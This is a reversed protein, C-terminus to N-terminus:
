SAGYSQFVEDRVLRGYENLTRGDDETMSNEDVWDWVFAIFGNLGAPIAVDAAYETFDANWQEQPQFEPGTWRGYETGVIPYDGLYQGVEEEWQEREDGCFCTQHNAYRHNAFLVAPEGDRLGADLEMMRDAVEPDFSWSWDITDLLLVGDYSLDERWFHVVDSMVDEWQEWTVGHPENFPEYVVSPWPELAERVDRMMPFVDRYDEVWEAGGSHSDWWGVVVRIDREAAADVLDRLRDLYAERGGLGYVDEDYGSLAVPIRLTNVGSDRMHSLMQERRQYGRETTEALEEDRGGGSTYFPLVYASTGAMVFREDGDHLLNGELTLAGPGVDSEHSVWAYGGAVLAILLM